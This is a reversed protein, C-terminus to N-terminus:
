LDAACLFIIVVLLFMDFVSNSEISHFFVFMEKLWNRCKDPEEKM